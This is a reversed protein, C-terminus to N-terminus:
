YTPTSSNWPRRAFAQFRAECHRQWSIIAPQRMAPTCPDASAPDIATATADDTTPHHPHCGHALRCAFTGAQPRSTPHPSFLALAASSIKLTRTMTIHSIPSGPPAANAHGRLVSQWRSGRSPGTGCAWRSPGQAMYTEISVYASRQPRSPHWWTHQKAHRAADHHRGWRQSCRAAYAVVDRTRGTSDHGHKVVQQGRWICHQEAGITTSNFRRLGGRGDQIM